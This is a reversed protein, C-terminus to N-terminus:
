KFMIQGKRRTSTKKQASKERKTGLALMIMHVVTYERFESEEKFCKVVPYSELM